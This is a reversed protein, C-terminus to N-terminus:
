EFIGPYKKIFELRSNTIALIWAENEPGTKWGKFSYSFYKFLSASIWEAVSGGGRLHPVCLCLIQHLRIIHEKKIIRDNQKLILKFIKDSYELFEKVTTHDDYYPEIKQDLPECFLMKSVKDLFIFIYNEENIKMVKYHSHGHSIEDFSDKELGLIKNKFIEYQTFREGVMPTYVSSTNFTQFAPKLNGMARNGGNCICKLIESVSIKEPLSLKQRQQQFNCLFRVYGTAIVIYPLANEGHKKLLHCNIAISKASHFNFIEQNGYKSEEEDNLYGSTMKIEEIDLTSFLDKCLMLFVFSNKDPLIKHMVNYNVIFYLSELIDNKEKTMTNFFFELKPIIQNRDNYIKLLEPIKNHSFLMDLFSLNALSIKIIDNNIKESLLANKVIEYMEEFKSVDNVSFETIYFDSHLEFSM